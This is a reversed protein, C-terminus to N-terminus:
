IGYTCLLDVSGSKKPTRCPFVLRQTSPDMLVAYKPKTSEKNPHVRVVIVLVRKGKGRPQYDLPRPPFITQINSEFVCNEAFMFLDNARKVTSFEEPRANAFARALSKALEKEECVVNEGSLTVVTPGIPGVKKTDKAAFVNTYGLLTLVAASYCLVQTGKM